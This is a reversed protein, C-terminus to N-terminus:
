SEGEEVPVLGSYLGTKALQCACQVHKVMLERFCAGGKKCVVKLCFHLPSWRSLYLNTKCMREVRGNKTIKLDVLDVIM